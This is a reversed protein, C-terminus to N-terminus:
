KIALMLRIHSAMSEASDAIKGVCDIIKIWMILAPASFEDEHEFIRKGLQDQAKDAEHELKDVYDILKLVEDADPGSFGAELLRDLSFIVAASEEVVKITSALFVNFHPRVQDPMEMWRMTLIVGVDEAADAISDMRSLVHLLDRREIPLFISKALEMRLDQKIIDCEHELQSIEKALRSVDHRNQAFLAVFIDNTKQVCQMTKHMHAKLSSFPNKTLLNWLM